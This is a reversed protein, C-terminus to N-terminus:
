PLRLRQFQGPAVEALLDCSDRSFALAGDNYRYPLRKIERGTATESVVIADEGANTHAAFEGDPSFAFKANWYDASWLWRGSQADFVQPPTSEFCSFEVYRGDSSFQGGLWEGKFSNQRPKLLHILSADKFRILAYNETKLDRALMQKGDPALVLPQWDKAVLRLNIARQAPTLTEDEEWDVFAVAPARRAAFQQKTITKPRWSAANHAALFLGLLPITLLLLLIRPRRKM